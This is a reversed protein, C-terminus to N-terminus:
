GAKVTHAEAVTIPFGHGKGELLDKYRQTYKQLTPLKLCIDILQEGGGLSQLASVCRNAFM